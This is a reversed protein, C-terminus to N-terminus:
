GYFVDQASEFDGTAITDEVCFTKLPGSDHTACAENAEEVTVAGRIEKLRRGVAAAASDRVERMSYLCKAPFQPARTTLFLRPDDDRVQWSEVFENVDKVTMDRGGRAFLGPRRPSGVLGITDEPYNGSLSVFIMRSRTNVEVDLNKDGDFVFRYSVTRKKLRTSSVILSDEDVSEVESGNLLLKGEESGIELVHRGAKVAVVDISSWNRVRRTRVHIELGAETTDDDDDNNNDTQGPIRALIADCHGQWTFFIGGFASFHPDGGGGAIATTHFCHM